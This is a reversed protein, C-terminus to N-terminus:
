RANANRSRCGTDGPCVSITVRRTTRSQNSAVRSSCSAIKRSMSSTFRCSSTSSRGHSVYEARFLGQSVDSCPRGTVDREALRVFLAELGGLYRAAQAADWRRVTFAAIDDLDGEALVSTTFEAM